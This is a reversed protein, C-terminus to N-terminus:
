KVWGAIDWDEFTYDLKKGYCKEYAAVKQRYDQEQMRLSNGRVSQSPDPYIPQLVHLVYRTKHFHETEMKERERIEVFCSIVPVNFKAAYHYAGRKGPRPKRYNFWMEQEPYILVNQGRRFAEAMITEFHRTMYERDPSVPIIDMYYLFFGFFGKRKLNTDQSVVYLNGRRMKQSLLRIVTNEAPNFHNSTIVAGQHIGRINELGQIVTDRNLIWTLVDAARGAAWNVVRFRPTKRITRYRDLLERREQPTLTPDGVEVKANFEGTGVARRINEIVPERGPTVM